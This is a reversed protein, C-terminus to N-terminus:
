QLFMDRLEPSLHSTFMFIEFKEAGKFQMYSNMINESNQELFKTPDRHATKFLYEMDRNQSLEHLDSLKTPNVHLTLAIATNAFSYLNYYLQGNYGDHLKSVFTDLGIFDENAAFTAMILNIVNNRTAQELTLIRSKEGPGNIQHFLIRLRPPIISLTQRGVMLKSYNDYTLTYDPWTSTVLQALEIPQREHVYGLVPIVFAMFEPSLNYYELVVSERYFTQMYQFAELRTKFSGPLIGALKPAMIWEASERMKLRDRIIRVLSSVAINSIADFFSVANKNKTLRIRNWIISPVRSIHKAPISFGDSILSRLSNQRSLDSKPSRIKYSPGVAVSVGAFLIVVALSVIKCRM